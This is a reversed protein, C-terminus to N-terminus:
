EVVEKKGNSRTSTHTHSNIVNNITIKVKLHGEVATCGVLDVLECPQSIHRGQMETFLPMLERNPFPNALYLSKHSITLGFPSRM